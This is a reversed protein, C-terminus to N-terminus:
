SNEKRCSILLNYRNTFTQTKKTTACNILIVNFMIEISYMYLHILMISHMKFFFFTFYNCENKFNKKQLKTKITEKWSIWKSVISIAWEEDEAKEYSYFYIVSFQQIDYMRNLILFLNIEYQEISYSSKLFFIDVSKKNSLTDIQKKRQELFILTLM